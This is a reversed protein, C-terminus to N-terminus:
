GSAPQLAEPRTQGPGVGRDPLAQEGQERAALEVLLRPLLDLVGEDGRVEADLRGHLEDVRQAGPDLDVAGGVLGGDAAPEALVQECEDLGVHVTADRAAADAVPGGDDEDHADVAGALRRGDALEGADEHGLVALDEETRGVGEASRRGVLELRPASTDPDGGHPGVLVTGVRGRHREVGDLCADLLLDVDDDDVGGAAEVVLDAEHVLEALDLADDLLLALDVLDQEDEVGRRALVAELLGLDEGLGDVHRADDQGLEVAGRLAADDDRHLSLEADRDLEDSETLSRVVKRGEVGLGEDVGDDHSAGARCELYAARGLRAAYRNETGPPHAPSDVIRVAVAPSVM